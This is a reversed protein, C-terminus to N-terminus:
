FRYGIALNAILKFITGDSLPISGEFYKRSGSLFGVNIDFYLHDSYTRQIGWLFYYGLTSQTNPLDLGILSFLFLPKKSYEYLGGFALYNASFGNGTKGTIMRKKLNYYWRAELTPKIEYEFNTPDDFDINLNSYFLKINLGASLSFPSAGLKFEAVLDPNFTTAFGFDGARLSFLGLLNTKLLMRDSAYCRLVPCIKDPNIKQKDKAFALGSEIYTSIFFSTNSKNLEFEAGTNIGFDFYGKKLFRRQIGWKSYVSIFDTKFVQRNQDFDPLIISKTVRAYRMGLAIYNGSLNKKSKGEAVKQKMNYYWRSELFTSFERSILDVTSSSFDEKKFGFGIGTGLSFAEGIKHEFGLLDRFSGMANSYAFNIKFMWPTEEHMMFSYELPSLYQVMSDELIEESYQLTDVQSWAHTTILTLLLPILRFKRGMKQIANFHTFM